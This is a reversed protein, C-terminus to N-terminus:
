ALPTTSKGVVPLVASGLDSSFLQQSNKVVQPTASARREGVAVQPADRLQITAFVGVPQFGQPDGGTSFTMRESDHGRAEGKAAALPWEGLPPQRVPSCCRVAVLPPLGRATATQTESTVRRRLGAARM